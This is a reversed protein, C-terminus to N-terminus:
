HVNTIFELAALVFFHMKKALIAVLHKFKQIEMNQWLILGVIFPIYMIRQM